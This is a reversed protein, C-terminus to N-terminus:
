ADDETALLKWNPDRSNVDREFTWRDTVTRITNNEGEIMESVFAVEVQAKNGSLSARKIDSSKVGVFQFTTSHGQANRADVASAFSDYIEKALLLKLAPKDGKAYAELVMEYAMVAGRVFTSAKFGQTRAAIEELGKAIDSGEVAYGKWVPDQAEPALIEGEVPAEPAPRKETTPQLVIPPKEFGTRTGLMSWLRWLVFGAVALLILNLPDMGSFM